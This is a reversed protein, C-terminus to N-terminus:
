KVELYGEITIPVHLIDKNPVLEGWEEYDENDLYNYKALLIDKIGIACKKEYEEVYDSNGEALSKKLSDIWNPAKEKLM